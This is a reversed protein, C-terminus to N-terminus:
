TESVAKSLTSPKAVKFFTLVKLMLLLLYKVEKWDDKSLTESEKCNEELPSLVVKAKSSKTQALLMVKLSTLEMEKPLKCVTLAEKPKMLLVKGAKFKVWNALTPWLKDITELSSNDLTAKVLKVEMPPPKMMALLVRNFVMSPKLLTWVTPPAMSTVPLKVVKFKDEKFDTLPPASKSDEALLKEQSANFFNCLLPAIWPSENTQLFPAVEVETLNDEVEEPEELLEAVEAEEVSSEELAWALTEEVVEEDELDLPAAGSSTGAVENM